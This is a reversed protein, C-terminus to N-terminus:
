LFALIQADAEGAQLGAFVEGDGKVREVGDVWFGRRGVVGVVGIIYEVRGFLVHDVREVSM